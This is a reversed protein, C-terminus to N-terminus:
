KMLSNLAKATRKIANIDKFKLKGDAIKNKLMDVIEDADRDKIIDIIGKLNEGVGNWMKDHSTLELEKEKKKKKKEPSEKEPSEKEPSEKEPSEKESSEKEPSKEDEDELDVDKSKKKENYQTWNNLTKM